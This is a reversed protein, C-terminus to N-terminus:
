RIDLKVSSGARGMIIDEILAFHIHPNIDSININTVRASFFGLFM